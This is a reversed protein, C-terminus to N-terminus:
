FGPASDPVVTKASQKGSSSSGCFTWHKEGSCPSGKNELLCNWYDGCTFNDGSYNCNRQAWPNCTYLAKQRITPQPTPAPTPSPPPVPKPKLRINLSAVTTNADGLSAPVLMRRQENEMGCAQLYKEGACFKRSPAKCKWFENCSLDDGSYVCDVTEWPECMQVIRYAEYDGSALKARKDAYEAALREREIREREAQEAALRQREIEAKEAAIRDNEAKEAALREREVREREAKEAAIRDSEAKEAAIREREAREREAQEAAVRDKEAQEAEAVRKREAEELAAKRAAEAAAKAEAESALAAIADAYAKQAAAEAEIRQKEKEEATAPPVSKKRNNLTKWIVVICCLTIVALGVAAVKNTLWAPRRLGLIREDMVIHQIHFYKKM